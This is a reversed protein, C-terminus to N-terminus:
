NASGEIGNIGLSVVNLVVVLDLDGDGHADEVVRGDVGSVTRNLRVSVRSALLASLRRFRDGDGARPLQSVVVPLGM